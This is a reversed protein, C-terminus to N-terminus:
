DKRFTNKKFEENIKDSKSYFTYPTCHLEIGNLYINHNMFENAMSINYTIGPKNKITFIDYMFIYFSTNLNILTNNPYLEEVIMSFNFMMRSMSSDNTIHPMDETFSGSIKITNVAKNLDINM